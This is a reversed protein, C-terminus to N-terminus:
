TKFGFGSYDNQDIVFPLVTLWDCGFYNCTASAFRPFVFVLSARNTKTKSRIPHFQFHRYNKLDNTDM